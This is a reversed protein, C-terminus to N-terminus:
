TTSKIICHCIFHSLMCSNKTSKLIKTPLIFLENSNYGTIATIAKTAYILLQKSPDTTM